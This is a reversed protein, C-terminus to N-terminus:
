TYHFIIDRSRIVGVIKTETRMYRYTRVIKRLVLVQAKLDRRASCHYRAVGLNCFKGVQVSKIFSLSMRLANGRTNHVTERITRRKWKERRFRWHWYVHMLLLCVAPFCRRFLFLAFFFLLSSCTQLWNDNWSIWGRAAAASNVRRLICMLWRRREYSSMPAFTENVQKLIGAHAENPGINRVTGTYTRIINGFITGVLEFPLITCRVARRGKKRVRRVRLYTRSSERFTQKENCVSYSKRKRNKECSHLRYYVIRFAFSSLEYNTSKAALRHSSPPPHIFWVFPRCSHSHLRYQPPHTDRLTVVYM